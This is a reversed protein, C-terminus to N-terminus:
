EPLAYRISPAPMEKPLGARMMAQRGPNQGQGAQLVNGMIVEDVAIKRLDESWESYKEEGLSEHKFPNPTDDHISASVDPRLGYELLTETERTVLAGLDKAPIDKLNGGM